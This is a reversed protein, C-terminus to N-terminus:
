DKRNILLGLCIYFIPAVEIVSINFFAAVLYGIVPLLLYVEKDKFSNKIGKFIAIAYLALYSLLAFLGEAILIQLYENHAKDVYYKSVSLPEKGFAFAFNDIGAGHLIYKPVVPLTKRWIEVRNTGYHADYHGKSLESIETKTQNLDKVLTTM